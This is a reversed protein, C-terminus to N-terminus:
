RILAQCYRTFKSTYENALSDRQPDCARFSTFLIGQIAQSHGRPSLIPLLVLVFRSVNRHLRHLPFMSVQATGKCITGTPVFM